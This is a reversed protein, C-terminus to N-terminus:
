HADRDARINEAAESRTPLGRRRTRQMFEELTIAPLKEAAETTIAMLEGQLSRHNRDARKKLKRVVRDPANKVSLNVPM